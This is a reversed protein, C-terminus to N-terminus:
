VILKIRVMGEPQKDLKIVASMDTYITSCLSKWANEDENLLGSGVAAAKEGMAAEIKRRVEPDLDQSLDDDVTLVCLCLTM